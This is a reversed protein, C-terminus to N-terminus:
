NYDEDGFHLKAFVTIFRTFQEPSLQFCDFQPKQYILTIGSGSLYYNVHTGPLCDMKCLAFSLRLNTIGIHSQHKHLILKLHKWVGRDCWPSQCWFSKSHVSIFIVEVDLIRDNHLWNLPASQPILRQWKWTSILWLRPTSTIWTIKLQMM